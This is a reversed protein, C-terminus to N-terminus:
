FSPPFEWRGISPTKPGTSKVNVLLYRANCIEVRFFNGGAIGIIITPKENILLTKGVIGPDSGLRNTWLRESIVAAAASGIKDQDPGFAQGRIMRVGLAGFYNASVNAQVIQIPDVGPVAAHAASPAGTACLDEFLKGGLNTRFRQFLPYSISGRSTKRWMQLHVLRGPDRIPLSTLLLSNLISFMATNAGIGLALSLVAVATVGRSKRAMRVAYRLDQMVEDPWRLGRAERCQEKYNEVAGFEIRARRVAEQRPLGSKELAETREELHLRLEDEMDRELNTRRWLGNWLSRIRAFM